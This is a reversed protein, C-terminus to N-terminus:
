ASLLHQIRIRDREPFVIRVRSSMRASAALIELYIKQEVPHGALPIDQHILKLHPRTLWDPETLCEELADWNNGFYAPLPISQALFGLLEDKTELGKTIVVDGGEGAASKEDYFHFPMM